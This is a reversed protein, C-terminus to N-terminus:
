DRKQRYAAICRERLDPTLLPFRSVVHAYQDVSLGYLRAVIANLNAYAAEDHDMGSSELRQALAILSRREPM